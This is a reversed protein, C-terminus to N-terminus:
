CTRDAWAEPIHGDGLQLRRDDAGYQICTGSPEEGEQLSGGKFFDSKFLTELVSRMEYGSDIYAQALTNVADPDNPPTYPWAPVQPEDAVFFNYLHRGIFQGAAPQKVIIDIIDEGNFNGNEGLFSKRATTTTGTGISM